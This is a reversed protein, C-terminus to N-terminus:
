SIYQPSGTIDLTLKGKSAQLVRNKGKMDTVTISSGSVPLTVRHTNGTTWVVQRTTQGKSFLLCYDNGSSLSVRRTYRFGALEKMLTQAAFFAAKPKGDHTMLGFNEEPLLQNAGDDRWDYWISLPINNMLAGLQMRVLWQAQVETSVSPSVAYGWESSVVPLQKKKGRAYRTLLSRIRQYDAGATEPASNRYPHVSLADVVDALGQQLCQELYPWSLQPTEALGLWGPGMITADPDARRIAQAAPKILALYDSAHPIPYWFRPTNPENWIEWLAGHGKFRAAAAGAFRAFARRVEDTHPGVELPSPAPLPEYLPNNYDLIFFPRLNLPAMISALHDYTKFDYRGKQREIDKWTLDVRVFHFGATAIQKLMTQIAATSLGGIHINVGCTQPITAPPLGKNQTQDFTIKDLEPQIGASCASAFIAPTALM